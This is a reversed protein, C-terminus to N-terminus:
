KLLDIYGVNINFSDVAALIHGCVYISDLGKVWSYKKTRDGMESAKPYVNCVYGEVTM